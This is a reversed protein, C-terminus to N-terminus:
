EYKYGGKELIINLANNAIIFTKEGGETAMNPIIDRQLKDFGEFHALHPEISLFGEFGRDYLDKLIEEIHGNGYGAPCVNWGVADKIHIYDTYDKTLNWSHPYTEIDNNCYNAPDFILGMRDYGITTVLDLCSEATMGYIGTENEHLLRVKYGAAADCFKNWREMVGERYKDREIGNENYFSFMRIYPAELIEALELTHKFLELHPMFDNSIDIKGIPSGISSLKIGNDDLKRKVDRAEAASHDVLSKGNVGRMEVYGINCKKLGEIQKDLNSSIEDAFGSKIFKSM